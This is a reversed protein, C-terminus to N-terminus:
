MPGGANLERKSNRSLADDLLSSQALSIRKEEKVLLITDNM